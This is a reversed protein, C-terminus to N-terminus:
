LCAPGLYVARLRTIRSQDNADWLVTISHSCPLGGWYYVLSQKRQREEEDTPCWPFPLKPPIPETRPVCDAPPAPLARFGQAILASKLETADYGYPFHRQIEGTLSQSAIELNKWSAAKIQDAFIAPPNSNAFSNIVMVLPVWGIIPFAAILAVLGVVLVSVSIAVRAAIRRLCGVGGPEPRELLAGPQRDAGPQFSV